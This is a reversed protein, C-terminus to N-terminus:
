SSSSHTDEGGVPRESRRLMKAGGRNLECHISDTYVKLPGTVDHTAVVAEGLDRLAAAM